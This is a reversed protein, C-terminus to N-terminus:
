VPRHLMHEPAVSLLKQIYLFLVRFLPLIGNMVSGASRPLLLTPLISQLKISKMFLIKM